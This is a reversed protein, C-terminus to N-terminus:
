LDRSTLPPLLIHGSIKRVWDILKGWGAAEGLVLLPLLVGPLHALGGGEVGKPSLFPPLFSFVQQRCGEWGDLHSGVLRFHGFAGGWWHGQCSFRAQLLM